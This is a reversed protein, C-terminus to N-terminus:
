ASGGTARREGRAMIALGGVALLAFAAPALFMLTLGIAGAVVGGTMGGLALSLPSASVFIASATAVATPLLRQAVIIGLSAFTGWVVGMLVQGAFLGAIGGSLAFFLNAAVGCGAALAMMRMPGFRRGALMTGAVPGIVWGATLAMRVIAVVGDTSPHPHATVEDHLAAFLQSTAAGAFALVVASIVFPMWLQTSFAIGAWGLFGAVACLRFLPLRSGTRDSRAGVLYGAIPATLNTLYFLGATTLSADLDRVLFSAIQPAAASYGLGSLLMAITAGRYLPTSLTLGVAGGTPEAPSAAPVVPDAASEPPM